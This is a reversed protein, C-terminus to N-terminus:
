LMERIEIWITDLVSKIIIIIIIKFAVNLSTMM